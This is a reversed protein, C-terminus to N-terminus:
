NAIVKTILKFIVNCLTIPHFDQAITAKAEKPILTLFTSNFAPQM